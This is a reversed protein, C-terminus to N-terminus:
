TNPGDLGEEALDVLAQVYALYMTPFRSHSVQLEPDRAIRRLVDEATAANLERLVPAIEVRYLVGPDTLDIVPIPLTEIPPLIGKRRKFADLELGPIRYSGKSTGQVALIEGKAIWNRITQKSVGLEAAVESVKYWGHM